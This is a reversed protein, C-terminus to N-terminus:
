ASIAAVVLSSLYLCHNHRLHRSLLRKRLKEKARNNENELHSASAESSSYKKRDIEFNSRVVRDRREFQELHELDEEKSQEFYQFSRDQTERDKTKILKTDELFEAHDLFTQGLFSDQSIEFCFKAYLRLLVKSTPFREILIRYSQDAKHYSTSYEVALSELDTPKYMKSKLLRWLELFASGAIKSNESATKAIKRYESFTAVDLNGEFGLETAQQTQNAIVKFIMRMEPLDDKNFTQIRESMKLTIFRASIEVHSPSNFVIMDNTDISENELIKKLLERTKLIIQNNYYGLFFAPIFGGIMVYFMTFGLDLNELFSAVIAIIGVYFASVYLGTRVGLILVMQNIKSNYYPITMILSLLTNVVIKSSGGSVNTFITLLLVTKLLVFSISARGSVRNMPSKGTPNMDFFVANLIVSLPVFLAVLVLSICWM